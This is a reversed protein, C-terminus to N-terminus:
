PAEEREEKKAAGRVFPMRQIARLTKELEAMGADLRDLSAALRDASREVSGATHALAESAQGIQGAGDVIAVGARDVNGASRELAVAAAEVRVAMADVSAIADRLEEVTADDKLLRGLSGRGEQLDGILVMLADMAEPIRGDGLKLQRALENLDVLIAEMRELNHVLDMKELARIVDFNHGSVLQGGDPLPPATPSGPGIRVVKGSLTVSAEGVSDARVHQAYRSAVSLLLSVRRDDTLTVQEVRGVQMGAITVPVGASLGVGDDLVLVYHHARTLRGGGWLSWLVLAAFALGSALVFGGVIRELHRDRFSMAPM